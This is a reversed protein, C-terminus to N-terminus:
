LNQNLLGVYEKMDEEIPLNAYIELLKKLSNRVGEENLAVNGAEDNIQIKALLFLNLQGLATAAGGLGLMQGALLTAASLTDEQKVHSIISRVETDGNKYAVISELGDIIDETEDDVEVDEKESLDKLSAVAATVNENNLKKIADQGNLNLENVPKEKKEIAKPKEELEGVKIRFDKVAKRLAATTMDPTLTGETICVQIQEADLPLLEQCQYISFGKGDLQFRCSGDSNIFRQGVRVLMSSTQQKYGFEAEGLEKMSKYGAAKFLERDSIYGMKYAIKSLNDNSKDILSRIATIEKNLENKAKASIKIEQIEQQTNVNRAM